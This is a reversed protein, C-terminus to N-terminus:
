ALKAVAILSSGPAVSNASSQGNIATFKVQDGSSLGFIVCPSFCFDATITTTNQYRALTYIFTGNVYSNMQVYSNNANAYLHPNFLWRGAAPATFIGNNFGQTSQYPITTEVGGGPLSTFSTPPTCTFIPQNPATYSDFYFKTGTTNLTPPAAGLSGDAVNDTWVGTGVRINAVLQYSSGGVTTRYVGFQYVYNPIGTTPFTINVAQSGSTTTVSLPSSVLTEGSKNFTTGDSKYYGTIYTFQYQYTGIGLATGSATALSFNSATPPLQALAFNVQSVDHKGLFIDVLQQVDSSVAPAGTNVPYLAM